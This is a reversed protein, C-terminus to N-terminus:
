PYYKLAIQTQKTIDRADYATCYQGWSHEFESRDQTILDDYILVATEVNLGGFGNEARYVFCTRDDTPALVRVLEFSSPNRMRNRLVKAGVYANQVAKDAEAKSDASGASEQKAAFIIGAM